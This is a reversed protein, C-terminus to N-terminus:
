EHYCWAGDLRTAKLKSLEHNPDNGGWALNEEMLFSITAFCLSQWSGRDITDDKKIATNLPLMDILEPFSALQDQDFTNDDNNNSSSSSTSSSSSSSSHSSTSSSFSLSTALGPFYSSSWRGQKHVLNKLHRYDRELNYQHAMMTEDIDHDLDIPAHRWEGERWVGQKWPSGQRLLTMISQPGGQEPRRLGKVIFLGCAMHCLGLLEEKLLTDRRKREKMLIRRQLLSRELDIARQKFLDTDSKKVRFYEELQSHDQQEFLRRRQQYPSQREFHFYTPQGDRRPFESAAALNPLSQFAPMMTVEYPSSSFSSPSVSRHSFSSARKERAIEVSPYTRKKAVSRIRHIMKKFGRGIPRHQEVTEQQRQHLNEKYLQEKNKIDINLATPTITGVVIPSNHLEHIRNYVGILDHLCRRWLMAQFTSQLRRPPSITLLDEDDRPQKRSASGRFSKLNPYLSLHPGITVSYDEPNYGYYDTDLVVRGNVRLGFAFCSDFKAAMYRACNIIARRYALDVLNSDFLLQVISWFKDKTSSLLHGTEDVMAQKAIQSSITKTTMEYQNTWFAGMAPDNRDTDVAALAAAATTASTSSAQADEMDQDNQSSSSQFGESAELVAAFLFNAQSVWYQSRVVGRSPPPAPTPVTPALPAEAPVVTNNNVVFQVVEDGPQAQETPETQTPAQAVVANEDLAQQQIPVDIITAANMHATVEITAQQQQEESEEEDEPFPPVVMRLPQQYVIWFRDRLDEYHKEHHVRRLQRDTWAHEQRLIRIAEFGFRQSRSMFVAVTSQMQKSVQCLKWLDGPTLFKILYILLDPPLDLPSFCSIFCPPKCTAATPNSPSLPRLAESSSRGASQSHSASGQVLHYPHHDMMAYNLPGQDVLSSSGAAHNNDQELLFRDLQFRRQFSNRIKGITM